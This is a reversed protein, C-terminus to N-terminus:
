LDAGIQLFFRTENNGNARHRRTGKLDLDLSSKLDYRLGAGYSSADQELVVETYPTLLANGLRFGYAVEADLRAGPLDNGIALDGGETLSWLDDLRPRSVGVSPQLSLSLGEGGRRSPTLRLNGGIGWERQDGGGLLVRGDVTASMSGEANLWNLSGALEAGGDGTKDAIRKQWEARDDKNSSVSRISWGLELAATLLGTEMSFSRSVEAALRALQVNTDLFSSAAGDVKFALGLPSGEGTLPDVGALVQFRAGGAWSTLSDTRSTADGAEPDQEVEGRGYGFTGWLSLRDTAFWNVYPNVMTIGVKYTGKATADNANNDYDLGWRSMTLALGTVLRPTPQVDIGITGSFGDGDVSTGEVKNGYSSYDGGGWVALSSFFSREEAGEGQALQVDSLPLVFNRGSFAQQWQFQGNSLQEQHGHLFAATDSLVEEMSIMVAGGPSGSAITDLRSTIAEVTQATLQQVVEPLVVEELVTDAEKEEESVDDVSYSVQVPTAASNATGGSSQVVDAAVNLTITGSGSDPPTLTATYTTGSDSGSFDTLEGTDATLESAAFGSVSESFTVTVTATEAGVLDTDDVTITTTLASPPTDVGEEYSVKVPTAARNLDQDTGISRQAVGQAVNLTITGSGSDPPTLTATYITGSDSGSFDTLEGTDATLESAAFGSVPESFTVTVTATEAGVLDTDDVTITTTLPSPPTDGCLLPLDSAGLGRNASIDTTVANCVLSTLADNYRIDLETLSNLGSVDLSTLADNGTITLSTLSNLGSVDLSTLADNRYIELATLSNLGSVDLSTLAYNGTILLSTLSNLGSVDLSTLADNEYTDLHTLSNLGSVDLSTLADNSHISLYTLSNLDSVDLSTLAYNSHITLSTLSNLGSVDLSTLADNGAITLYTLSNLGSVDLSTLADNGTITLYTLSNLGSVDLSTLADNRYIELYTLSNLDSVDLSTLAYNSHITLSTLSNLGSVDLSTLADNRYITLSTLSNLGSVDLSTLASSDIRLSICDTLNGSTYNSNDCDRAAAPAPAFVLLAALLPAASWTPPCSALSAVSWSDPAASSQTRRLCPKVRPTTQLRPASSTTTPVGVQRHASSGTTNSDRRAAAQIGPQDPRSSRSVSMPLHVQLLVLSNYLLEGLKVAVHTFRGRSANLHRTVTVAGQASAVAFVVLEVPKGASGGGPGAIGTM